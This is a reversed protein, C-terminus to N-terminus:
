LRVAGLGNGQPSLGLCGRRFFEIAEDTSDFLGGGISEAPVTKVELRLHDDVSSAVISTKLDNEELKFRALHHKGPFIRGGGGATLWSNSDRRPVYVGVKTGTPDDWEM